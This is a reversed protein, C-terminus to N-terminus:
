SKIAQLSFNGDHYLGFGFRLRDKRHDTQIGQEKLKKAMADCTAENPMQFTLFHGHHGLDRFLLNKEHIFDHNQKALEALFKKQLKQVHAHIMPVTLGEKKFIKLAAILRYMAAFDMTSGAFRFGNDAYGVESGYNTLSGFGAFWGTNEPRLDTGPPVWMFCCGEGGQAYKYSGAIYFVNKEIASLDTPVAMFAHYGDIAVLTEPSKVAHVVKAFDKLAVGSNFFVQSFFVLDYHQREIEQILREEINAFPQTPVRVVEARGEEQFRLLQRDFSYFESDTTLVKIKKGAPFCSLLRYVLEHTNPAFVIQSPQSLQLNECILKQAEPMKESFIYDWKADVYKCSDWWYQTHAELTVDPWYHHSHSAFHQVGPHANLFHSYLHQYSKM